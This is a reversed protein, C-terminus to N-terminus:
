GNPENGAPLSARAAGSGIFERVVRQWSEPRELYPSHGAGDIVAVRAGAVYSAARRIIAPSFIPDSSGVVFLVPATVRKLEGAAVTTKGLQQAILGPSPSGFSALL